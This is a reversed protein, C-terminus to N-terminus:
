ISGRMDKGSTRHSIDVSHGKGAQEGVPAVTSTVEDGDNM